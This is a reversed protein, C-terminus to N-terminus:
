KIIEKSVRKKGYVVVTGAILDHLARGKATFVALLFGLGFTVLTLLYGVSHRLALIVASPAHGNSKVIRLGTLMKGLSQSTIMPFIVLNTVAILVMILWGANSISNRFLNAGDEGNWRNFLLAIVPPSIIIIYDILVAGCRLLFPAKLKEADFNVVVHETRFSKRVPVTKETRVSM